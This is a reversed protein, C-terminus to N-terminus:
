ACVGKTEATQRKPVQVALVFPDLSPIDLEGGLSAVLTRMAPIGTGGGEGPVERAPAGNNEIRMRWRDGAESIQVHVRDAQGHRVSNTVAERVINVFATGIAPDSPLEGDVVSAVNVLSFASVIGALEADQELGQDSVLDDMLGDLLPMIVDMTRGPAAGDELYRHLISLRQGIIDHVRSRVKALSEERAVVDLTKLRKQLEAGAVKLADNVQQLQENVRQQDTVDVSLVMRVRRGELQVYRASFLRYAGSGIQVVREAIEGHRGSSPPQAYLAAHWPQAAGRAGWRDGLDGPLGLWQSQERMADNMLRVAGSEEAVLVGVPMKAVVETVLLRSISHKARDQDRLFVVVARLAFGAWVGLIVVLDLQRGGAGLIGLAPPTMLILGFTEFFTGWRPRLTMCGIGVVAAATIVWELHEVPITLGLFRVALVDRGFGAANAIAAWVAMSVVLAVQFVMTWRGRASRTRTELFFVHLVQASLMLCLAVTLAMLAGSGLETLAGM